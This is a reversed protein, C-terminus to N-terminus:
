FKFFFVLFTAMIKMQRYAFEKGLCMRPGAQFATFKFPSEPQFVGDYLRREPWFEEADEGWIYTMRGVPYAMYNVGDGKKIKFGDPLVDDGELRKGDLPVVTYLRLTETLAAHLYHMKDLASEILQISFEDISNTYDSSGTAENVELAVIEQIQSHKCLMYFFWTLTNGSTDKGTASRKGMLVVSSRKM